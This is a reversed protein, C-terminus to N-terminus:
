RRRLDGLIHIFIAVCAVLYFDRWGPGDAGRRFVRFLTAMLWAVLLGWLPLMVLSHTVGRHGRLYALESVYGLVFDSDPFTAAATGVLVTQWIAPQGSQPAPRRAMLRGALAGSLAHTLTDM